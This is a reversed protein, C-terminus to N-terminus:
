SRRISTALDAVLAALVADPAASDGKLRRETELVRSSLKKLASEGLRAAALYVRHLRYPHLGALPNKRGDGLEAQLKPAIRQKFRPYSRENAPLDAAKVLGSVASLQRCFGAVLSFLSLRTGVVDSAGRLLRDIALLAEDPRGAGLSDLIAWVDEDGRDEVVERVLEVGISSGAALTSLKRYEAGLRATSESDIDGSRGGGSREQKRLTRRALEAMAAGDISVGTERELEQRVVDLGVWGSRKDASIQGASVVAKSEALSKVLPHSEAWVSEALVLVHKPPLGERLIETLLEEATEGFGQIQERRGAELLAPLDERARQVQKAARRRRSKKRYAPGGELASKPLQQILEEASSAYPDLQFLRLAQLLCAAARRERAGLAVEQDGVPLVDIAEDVLSAATGEDALVSSEVVVTVKGADFLAFTRLDDLAPLLSEPRRLVDVPCGFSEALVEGLRLAAPESVIRDGTVLYLPGIRGGQVEAIASEVDMM